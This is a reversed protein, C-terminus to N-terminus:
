RFALRLRTVTAGAFIKTGTEDNNLTFGGAALV